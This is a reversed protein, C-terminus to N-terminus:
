GRIEINGAVAARTRAAAFFVVRRTGLGGAGQILMSIRPSRPPCQSHLRFHPLTTKKAFVPSPMNHKHAKDWRIEPRARAERTYVRGMFPGSLRSLFPRGLALAEWASIRHCIHDPVLTTNHAGFPAFGRQRQQPSFASPCWLPTNHMAPHSDENFDFIPLQSRSGSHHEACRYTRIRTSTSSHFNRDAVLTTNQADIPAFGQQRRLISTAIPCWLPIKRMSPPLDENVDVCPLQSRAGSHHETCRITRIRTSTAFHFNRDPVLTTNQADFPAIGRQRRRISDENVHRRMRCRYSM